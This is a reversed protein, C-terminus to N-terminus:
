RYFKDVILMNYKRWWFIEMFDCFSIIEKLNNIIKIYVLGM